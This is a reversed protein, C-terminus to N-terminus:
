PIDALRPVCLGERFPGTCNDTNVAYLGIIGGAKIVGHM